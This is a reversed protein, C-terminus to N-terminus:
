TNLLEIEARWMQIRISYIEVLVSFPFTENWDELQAIELNRLFHVYIKLWVISPYQFIFLFLLIRFIWLMLNERIWISCEYKIRTKDNVIKREIENTKMEIM